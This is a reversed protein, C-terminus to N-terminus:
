SSLVSNTIHKLSDMTFPQPLTNVFGFHGCNQMVPDLIMGSMAIVKLDAQMAHLLRCTEVASEGHKDALALIVLPLPLQPNDCFKQLHQVAGVRDGVAVVSFGLYELMIKGIEVMQEDPEILLVFRNDAPRADHAALTSRDEALAPIYFSVITGRNLESSVVVHGGHNRLISYVITLGLGMGKLAGRAKTSYYPDFVQLLQEPSIGRGTDCIDIRIYKGAPVYQGSMLQPSSFENEAIIVELQQGASAEVANQLVRVMAQSLEQPDGHILGHGATVELRCQEDKGEFFNDVTNKVLSAIQVKERSVIGFNSFCSIQRTLDVAALTAQKAQQLMKRREDITQSEGHLIVIDLNGCIVTLLNNFDHAFGGAMCSLADMKKVLRLANDWERQKKEATFQRSIDRLICLGFFSEEESIPIFSVTIIRNNLYLPIDEFIDYKEMGRGILQYKTWERIAANFPGWDVVDYLLKGIIKEERCSFITLASSNIAVVKGQFNLEIIGEELKAFIGTSHRKEVLLESTTDSPELGDPIRAARRTTGPLVTNRTTYALLAGQLHQRIEHLNGKAICMDCPIERLIRVSDELVIASLVVIFIGEYKTTNRLIRCLQEGSVMPMILDTFVIDPAFEDVSELAALGTAATRVTCGEQSLIASVARLLVPNNDVVLAKIAIEM